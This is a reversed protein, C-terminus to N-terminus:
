RSPSVMSRRTLDLSRLRKRLPGLKCQASTMQARVVGTVRRSLDSLAFRCWARAQAQRQTVRRCEQWFSLAMPSMSPAADAFAIEPPPEVDWSSRPSLSRIAPRRRSTTPSTSSGPRRARSHPMSRKRSTASMSATSSKGPSSSAAPKAARSKFRARETRARLHRRPSPDRRRRRPARRIRALGARGCAARPQAGVGPKPPTQEDVWGGGHDGYVGVTSLYVISRLHKAEAFADGCPPLSRIATERRAAGLGACIRRPLRRKETGADRQTGDFVLAQLRGADYANLIAAREAGRVTGIIRDFKEGFAAVFHEACYGFGFCILTSM